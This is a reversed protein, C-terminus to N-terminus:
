SNFKAFKGNKYRLYKYVIIKFTNRHSFESRVSLEAYDFKKAWKKANILKFFKKSEFVTEGKNLTLVITYKKPKRM